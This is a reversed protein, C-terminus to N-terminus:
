AVSGGEPDKHPHRLRYKIIIDRSLLFSLISVPLSFVVSGLLLPVGVTLFTTWNVWEHFKLHQISMSPPFQHPNSLLWYGMQYEMRLLLPMLPLALDHLTVAIVAAIINARIMWACGIALLTKLGFLPTFGFFFGIAMGAAIANPTDRIALLKLSHKKFWARM